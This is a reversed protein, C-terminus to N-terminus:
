PSAIGSTVTYAFTSDSVPALATMKATIAPRQVTAMMTAIPTAVLITNFLRLSEGTIVKSCFWCTTMPLGTSVPAGVAFSPCATVPAGTVIEAGVLCGLLGFISTGLDSHSAFEDSCHQLSNERQLGLIRPTYTHTHSACM